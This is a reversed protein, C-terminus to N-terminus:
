KLIRISLGGTTHEVKFIPFCVDVRVLEMRLCPLLKLKHRGKHKRTHSLSLLDLMITSFWFSFLKWLFFIVLSLVQISSNCKLCRLRNCGVVALSLNPFRLHQRSHEGLCVRLCLTLMGDSMGEINEWSGM